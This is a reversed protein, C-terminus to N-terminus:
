SFMFKVRTEDNCFVTDNNSDTDNSVLTNLVTLQLTPVPKGSQGRWESKDEAGSYGRWWLTGGRVLWGSEPKDPQQEGARYGRGGKDGARWEGEGGLDGKM